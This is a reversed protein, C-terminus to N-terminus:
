KPIGNVQTTSDDEAGQWNTATANLNPVWKSLATHGDQFQQAGANRVSTHASALGSTAGMIGFGPYGINIDAAAKHAQDM